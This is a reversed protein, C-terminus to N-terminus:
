VTVRCLVRSMFTSATRRDPPSARCLSGFTLLCCLAAVRFLLRREEISRFFYWEVRDETVARLLAIKPELRRGPQALLPTICRM